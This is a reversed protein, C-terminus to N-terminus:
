KLAALRATRKLDDLWNSLAPCRPFRRGNLWDGQIHYRFPTDKALRVIIAHQDVTDAARLFANRPFIIGMGITGIVADQEGWNAMVGAATDLAFDERALRTLGIGLELEDEAHGGSVTVEVSSDRRGAYASCLFRVTYPRDKDGVKEAMFEVQIRDATESVMRKTWIIDGKGESSWVPFARGNVYLTVGGIGCTKGVHLADMGWEQEEHYSAGNGFTSMVLGPKTKGFFDFQGWYARYGCLDSEWGINPPVWDQAWAVRPKGYKARVTALFKEYDPLPETLTFENEVFAQLAALDGKARLTAFSDWFVPKAYRPKLGAILRDKLFDLYYRLSENSTLLRVRLEETLFPTDFGSEIFRWVPDPETQGSKALAQILRTDLNFLERPVAALLPKMVSVLEPWTYRIDTARVDGSVWSDDPASDMNTDIQWTDIYGDGNTDVYEYRTDPTNDYDFDILMWAHEAGLLHIRQDTPSYYVRIGSRPKGAIEFRKNFKGGSPGGIQQFFENGKSIVGEWREEPDKFRGNELNDGDINLDNEDWCLQYDAWTAERCYDPSAHYELFQGTPIGRLTRKEGIRPDLMMREVAHASVSVDFDRPNEWMADDDADFSYRLNHIEDGRGGVRIVEETVGDQDLDYFLFPNEFSPAWETDNPGLSFACFLENGGFHTRYQCAPQRYTYGIDYWLLNDDGIDDGWWVTLTDQENNALDRPFYLGMEDVDDDGDRDTYDCVADWTGDAKWDALYLDSDLDPEQGQQMDGDEDVVRVLVPRWAEPHRLATDIFWVEEPKGDGNRDVYHREGPKGALVKAHMAPDPKAADGFVRVYLNQIAADDALAQASMCLAIGSCFVSLRAWRCRM